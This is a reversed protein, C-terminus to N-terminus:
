LSILARTHFGVMAVLAVNSVTPIYFSVNNLASALVFPGNMVVFLSDALMQPITLLWRTM